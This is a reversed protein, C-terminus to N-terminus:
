TSGRRKLVDVTSQFELIKRVQTLFTVARGSDFPMSMLCQHALDHPVKAGVAVTLQMKRDARNLVYTPKSQRGLGPQHDARM